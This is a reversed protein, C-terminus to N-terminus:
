VVDADGVNGGRNGRGTVGEGMEGSFARLARSFLWLVCETKVTGEM